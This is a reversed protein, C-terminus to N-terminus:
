LALLYKALPSIRDLTAPRMRAPFNVGPRADRRIYAGQLSRRPQSTQNAGHGHWVSGNYIIVSGAPGCAAVQGEYNVTQDQILNSPVQPWLHSGPVFCTAGNEERFEDVMLIFGVMPWGDAARRFDVHLGQAPSGPRLTRALMTSLKFPQGIVSCCATLIPAHVYFADFNPGRNVFDHVRTTTRGTAVDAPDASSVAADYAAALQSLKAPAVPGAVVVFGSDSLKRAADAPLECHSQITSFWEDM